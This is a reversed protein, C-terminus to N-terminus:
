FKYPDFQLGQNIHKSYKTHHSYKSAGKAEAILRKGIGLKRYMHKVYCYHVCEDDFAIWGMIQTEDDPAVCVVVRTKPSMIIAKIKAQHGQFFIDDKPYPVVITGSSYFKLAEYFSRLWTSLVFNTDSDQHERLIM